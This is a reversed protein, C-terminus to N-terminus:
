TAARGIAKWQENSILTSRSVKLKACGNISRITAATSASLSSHMWPSLSVSRISALPIDIELVPLDETSSEFIARFEREPKFGSRKLFPLDGVGVVMKKAEFLNMYNMSGTTIGRVHNLTTLLIDRDFVVCVGAPGNSFVRWHHYTESTQSFCLGLVTKLNKKEKYLSIFFSDNKDDWTKPDLLTLKRETLLHLLAPLDTYRRLYTTTNTSSTAM